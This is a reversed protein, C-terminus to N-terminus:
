FYVVLTEPKSEPAITGSIDSDATQQTVNKNKITPVKQELIELTKAIAHLRSSATKMVLTEPSLSKQLKEFCAVVVLQDEGTPRPQELVTKAVALLVSKQVVTLETSADVAVLGELADVLQDTIVAKSDLAFTALDEADKVITLAPRPKEETVEAEEAEQVPAATAEAAPTAPAAAEVPSALAADLTKALSLAQPSLDDTRLSPTFDDDEQTQVTMTEEVNESKIILRHQNAGADVFSVEEVHINKLRRPKRAAKAM